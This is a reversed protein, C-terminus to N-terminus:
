IPEIFFSMLHFILCIRPCSIFETTQM